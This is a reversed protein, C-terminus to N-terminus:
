IKVEHKKLIYTSYKAVVWKDKQGEVQASLCKSKEIVKVSHYGSFVGGTVFNTKNTIIDEIIDQSERVKIVAKEDTSLNQVYSIVNFMLSVLDESVGIDRKEGADVIGIIPFRGTTEISPLDTVIQVNRTGTVSKQSVLWNKINVYIDTSM